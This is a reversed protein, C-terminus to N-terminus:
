CFDNCITSPIIGGGGHKSSQAESQLRGCVCRLLAFRAAQVRDPCKHAHQRIMADTEPGKIMALPVGGDRGTTSGAAFGGLERDSAALRTESALLAPKLQRAGQLCGSQLLSRRGTTLGCARLACCGVGLGPRALVCSCAAPPKCSGCQISRVPSSWHASRMQKGLTLENSHLQCPLDWLM